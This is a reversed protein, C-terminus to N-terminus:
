RGCSLGLNMYRVAEQFEVYEMARYFGEINRMLVISDATSFRAAEETEGVGLHIELKERLGLAICRVGSRLICWPPLLVVYLHAYRGLAVIVGLEAKLAGGYSALM